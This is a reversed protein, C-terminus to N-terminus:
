GVVQLLGVPDGVVDGEHVEAVQDLVVAGRRQESGGALLPGLLVHATGEALGRRIRRASSATQPESRSPAAAPQEVVCSFAACALARASWMRSARALRWFFFTSPGAFPAM